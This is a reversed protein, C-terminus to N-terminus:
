CPALRNTFPPVLVKEKPVGTYHEMAKNWAIVKKEGDIVFAADPL